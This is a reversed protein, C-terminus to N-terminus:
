WAVSNEKDTVSGSDQTFRLGNGVTNSTLTKGFPKKATCQVTLNEKQKQKEKKGNLSSLNRRKSHSYWIM